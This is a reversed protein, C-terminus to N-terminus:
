RAAAGILRRTCIATALHDTGQAARHQFAAVVGGGEDLDAADAVEHRDGRASEGLELRTRRGEEVDVVVNTFIGAGQEAKEVAVLAGGELHKDGGVAYPRSQSQGDEAGM